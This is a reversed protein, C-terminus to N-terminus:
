INRNRRESIIKAIVWIIVAPIVWVQSVTIVIVLNWRDVSDDINLSTAAWLAILVWPWFVVLAVILRSKMTQKGNTKSAPNRATQAVLIKNTLVTENNTQINHATEFHVVGNQPCDWAM